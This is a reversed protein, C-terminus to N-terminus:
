KIITNKNYLISKKKFLMKNVIFPLKDNKLHAM